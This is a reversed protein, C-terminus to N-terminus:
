TLSECSGGTGLSITTVDPPSTTTVLEMTSSTAPLTTTLDTIVTTPLITNPPFMTTLMKQMSQDFLIGMAESMRRHYTGRYTMVFLVAHWLIYIILLTVFIPTLRKQWAVIGNTLDVVELYRIDSTPIQWKYGAFLDLVLQHATDEVGSNAFGFEDFRTAIIPATDLFQEHETTKGAGSYPHMSSYYVLWTVLRAPGGTAAFQTLNCAHMNDSQHVLPIVAVHSDYIDYWTKFPVSRHLDHRVEVSSDFQYVNYPEYIVSLGSSPPSISLHSLHHRGSTAAILFGGLLLVVLFWLYLFDNDRHGKRFLIERGVELQRLDQPSTIVSMPQNTDDDRADAQLQLYTHRNCLALCLRRRCCFEFTRGILVIVLTLFFIVVVNYAWLMPRYPFDFLMPLIIIWGVLMLFFAVGYANTSRLEALPTNALNTLMDPNIPEIETTPEYTRVVNESWPSYQLGALAIKCRLENGLATITVQERLKQEQLNETATDLGRENRADVVSLTMCSPSFMDIGEIELDLTVFVKGLQVTQLRSQGIM